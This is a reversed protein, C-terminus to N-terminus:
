HTLTSYIVDIFNKINEESTLPSLKKFKRHSYGRIGVKEVSKLFAFIKKKDPIFGSQIQTFVDKCGLIDSVCFVGECNKYWPFGFILSPKGRIVAEWGATGTVTAVAQSKRILDFTSIHVPIIKVKPLSAIEKYYGRYRGFFGRHYDWQLPNEKVYIEWDNPLSQSLMELMLIQDDFIDGQPNTSCEPQLHLPVYIFKKQEDIDQQVATYEKKYLRCEELHKQKEMKVKWYPLYINKITLVRTKHFIMWIYSHLSRFFTLNRLHIFIKNYGPFFKAARIKDPIYTYLEKSYKLKIEQAMDNQRLYYEQFASSLDEFNIGTQLQKAYEDKLQSYEEFDDFFLVTDPVGKARKFILTKIGLFKAISYLILNYSTHPIDVFLVADPSFKRLVGYWYCVYRNYLRKKEIFNMESFDLQNMMQLVQMERKQLFQFVAKSPYELGNLTIGEAPEAALAHFSPHFVTNPYLKREEQLYRNETTKKIWYVIDVEKQMLGKAIEIQEPSSFGSLFIRM